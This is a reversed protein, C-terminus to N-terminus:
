EHNATLQRKLAKAELCYLENVLIFERVAEQDSVKVERHARPNRFAGFIDKFLNAKSNHEAQNEDHWELLSEEGLFAKSFLKM